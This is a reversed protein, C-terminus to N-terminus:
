RYRCHRHSHSPCSVSSYEYGVWVGFSFENNHSPRRKRRTEWSCASFDSAWLFPPQLGNAITYTLVRVRCYKLVRYPHAESAPQRKTAAFDTPVCFAHGSPLFVESHSHAGPNLYRPARGREQARVSRLARIAYRNRAPANVSWTVDVAVRSAERLAVDLGVHQTCHHQRTARTV